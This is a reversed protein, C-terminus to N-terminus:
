PMVLAAAKKGPMSMDAECILNLKLDNVFPCYM